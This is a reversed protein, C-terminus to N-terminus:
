EVTKNNENEIAELILKQVKDSAVWEIMEEDYKVEEVEWTGDNKFIVVALRDKWGMAHAYMSLQWRTKKIKGSDRKYKGKKWAGFTKWDCLVLGKNDEVIGDYRGAYHLKDCYVVQETSVLKYRSSFDNVASMLRSDLDDVPPATLWELGQQLNNLHESVKDGLVRSLNSILAEDLGKSTCWNKFSTKDFPQKLAIISTVSLYKGEYVRM